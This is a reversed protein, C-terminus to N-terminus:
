WWGTCTVSVVAVVWGGLVDGRVVGKGRADVCGGSFIWMLRGTGNGGLM